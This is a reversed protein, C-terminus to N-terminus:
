YPPQSRKRRKRDINFREWADWAEGAIAIVLMLLLVTLLVAPAILLPSLVWWWSWAIVSTLKLGIFLCTLAGFFSIGTTLTYTTKQPNM